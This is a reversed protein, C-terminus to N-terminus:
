KKSEKYVCLIRQLSTIFAGVTIIYLGVVPYNLLLSVILVISREPREMIGVKCDIGLGEARARTYSVLFSFMVAGVGVWFVTPNDRYLFVISFLPLLDSVRDVVSDLFAGFVSGKGYRRALAGDLADCLNGLILLVAGVFLDGKAIFVSAVGVTFMGGITLMNPSVRLKYLTDIVPSVVKEFTPKIQKIVQGM